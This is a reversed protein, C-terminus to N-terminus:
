LVSRLREDGTREYVEYASETDPRGIVTTDVELWCTAGCPLPNDPDYIVRCHGNFQVDNFSYVPKGARGQRVSIVPKLPFMPDVKRKNRNESVRHRNIVIITKAVM